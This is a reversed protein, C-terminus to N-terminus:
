PLSVLSTSERSLNHSFTFCESIIKCCKILGNVWSCKNANSSLCEFWFLYSGFLPFTFQFIPSTTRILSSFLELVNHHFPFTVFKKSLRSLWIRPTSNNTYWSFVLLVHAILLGMCCKTGNSTGFTFIVMSSSSCSSGAHSVRGLLCTAFFM